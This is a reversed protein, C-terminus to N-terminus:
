IPHDFSVEADQKEVPDTLFARDLVVRVDGREIAHARQYEREQAQELQRLTVIHARTLQKLQTRYNRNKSRLRQNETLLRAIERYRASISENLITLRALVEQIPMVKM